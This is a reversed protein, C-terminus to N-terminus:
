EESRDPSSPASFPIVSTDSSRPRAARKLHHTSSRPGKSSAEFGAAGQWTRSNSLTRAVVAPVRPPWGYSRRHHKQRRRQVRWTGYEEAIELSIFCGELFDTIVRGEGESVM